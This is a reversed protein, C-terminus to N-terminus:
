GFCIGNRNGDAIDIINAVIGGVSFDLIRSAMEYTAGIIATTVTFGLAWAAGKIM